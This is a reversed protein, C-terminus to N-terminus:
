SYEVFLAYNYHTFLRVLHVVDDSVVKGSYDTLIWQEEERGHQVGYDAVESDTQLDIRGVEELEVERM